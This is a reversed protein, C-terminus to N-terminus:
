ENPAGEKVSEKSSDSGGIHSELFDILHEFGVLHWQRNHPTTNGETTTQPWEQYGEPLPVKQYSQPIAYALREKQRVGVHGKVMTGWLVLECEVFASDGVIEITPQVIDFDWLNSNRLPNNKEPFSPRKLVVKREGSKEFLSEFREIIKDKLRAKEGEMTVESGFAKNLKSADQQQIGKRLKDLNLEIREEDTMLLFHQAPLFDVSLCLLAAFLCIILKYSNM